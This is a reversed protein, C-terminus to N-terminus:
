RASIEEISPARWLQWQFHRNIAWLNRGDRSFGLAEVWPSEHAMWTPKLTLVEQRTDLDWLRVVGEGGGTALRRGDPSFAVAHVGLRHARLLALESGSDADWLRATGDEAGTALRQGDPAFAVWRINEKQTPFAVLENTTGLNILHLGRRGSFALRRHDPSFDAVPLNNVGEWIEGSIREAGTAVDWRKYFGLRDMSCLSQGDASFHLMFIGNTHVSLQRLERRTNLDRVQLRGRMDGTALISERPAFAVASFTGTQGTLQWLTHGSDADALVLSRDPTIMAARRGDPSLTLRTAREPLAPSAVNASPTVARWIKVAEDKGGSALFGGDPSFALAWVEGHHGQLRALETGTDTRWVRISQDASASAITQGGPAFAVASVWATHNTFICQEKGSAISWLRATHDWSSSALTQGDPAFALATVSNRHGRLTTKEGGTAPDLLRILGSNEGVALLTGDPSFALAGRLSGNLKEGRFSRSESDTILDWLHIAGGGCFFALQKGDPTFALARILANHKITARPQLSAADWLRVGSAGGAALQKGDPSFAACYAVGPTLTAILQRTSQNWLRLTGDYSGSALLKGDPAVAVCTVVNSHHGLTFLEDGRSSQWLYRWEWHRLDPRNWTPRHRELLEAARYFNDTELAQQALNMDVAYLNQRTTQEREEAVQRLRLQEQEAAQARRRSAKEKALSYVATGLGVVLATVVAASAAFALKNRRVLKEFRYLKSPPRAVVPEHDLHRSIDMAIGNATEYRRTRDKELCKMVIWDLDGRILHLLKPPNAQRHRAIEALTDDALTSLRTSPRPPEKERITRRIEDLGIRVLQASDFPTNGTLLEYLLVGLSYIDSRTDIDLASMEAQEPSMYAPTGIFQEFQTFLTKDTLRQGSIAKAIGFDIVKPVPVGDHLTVLINSPKIDRHIIGKQHAHQIAKCVQAFLELRQETSLNNQDCYETVKIGRVLEMVFFPRGTDTAGADLVKAINPHDMLALAQLEAEFRAVVQATDMGLKIVKLAVRRRVPEEQEAMYVIGCGGEGIKQLLKYRGIMTGTPELTFKPLPLRVTQSLFEGAQEHARLLSEIQQRLEADGGCVEALYNEREPPSKQALLQSFLEKIRESDAKM